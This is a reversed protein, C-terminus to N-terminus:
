AVISTAGLERFMYSDSSITVEVPQNEKLDVNTVLQHYLSNAGVVNCAYFTVSVQNSLRIMGVGGHKDFWRVTGKLNLDKNYPITKLLCDEGFVDMSDENFTISEIKTTDVLLRVLHGYMDFMFGNDMETNNFVRM